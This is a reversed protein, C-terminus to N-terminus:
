IGNEKWLIVRVFSFAFYNHSNSFIKGKMQNTRYFDFFMLLFLSKKARDIKVVDRHYYIKEGPRISIISLSELERTPSDIRRSLRFHLRFDESSIVCGDQDGLVADGGQKAVGREYDPVTYRCHLAYCARPFLCNGIPTHSRPTNRTHWHQVSALSRSRSWRPENSGNTKVRWPFAHKNVTRQM